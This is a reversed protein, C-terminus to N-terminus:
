CHLHFSQFAQRDSLPLSFYNPNVKTSCWYFYLGLVCSLNSFFSAPKPSFVHLIDTSLSMQESIKHLLDETLRSVRQDRRAFTTHQCHPLTFGSKHKQTLDVGYRHCPRWTPVLGSSYGIGYSSVCRRLFTVVHRLSM